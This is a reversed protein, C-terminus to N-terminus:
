KIIYGDEKSIIFNDDNFTEKIKKRLRYVHTEVTHTELNSSYKWIQNQLMEIKQPTKHNKLFMIIDLERETLKLKKNETNITRSNLDITYNKISLKSQFNYKQKILHVNILEILKNFEIPFNEIVLINRKDIEIDKLLVNNSNSIVFTSNNLNKKDNKLNQILGENSPYNKVKFSLINENESLINYLENLQVINVIQKTM